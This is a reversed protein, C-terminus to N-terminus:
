KIRHLMENIFIAALLVVMSFQFLVGVQYPSGQLSKLFVFENLVLIGSIIGEILSYTFHFFFTTKEQRTISKM